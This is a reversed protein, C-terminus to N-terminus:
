FALGGAVFKSVAEYVNKSLFNFVRQGEQRKDLVNKRRLKRLANSIVSQSLGTESEIESCTMGEPAWKYQDLLLAFVKSEDTEELIVRALGIFNGASLIESKLRVAPTKAQSALIAAQAM